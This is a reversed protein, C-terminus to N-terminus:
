RRPRRPAADLEADPMVNKLWDPIAIMRQTTPDWCAHLTYGTAGLEEAHNKIEYSFCFSARKRESVRTTVELLDDLRAPKMYRVFSEVVPMHLRRDLASIPLGRDRLYEVRGVEFYTLYNGYYVVSMTDTDKYRVRVRTISPM